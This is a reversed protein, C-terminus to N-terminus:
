ETEIEAMEEKNVHEQAEPGKLQGSLQDELLATSPLVTKLAEPLQKSLAYRAIGM